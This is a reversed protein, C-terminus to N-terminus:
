QMLVAVLGDARIGLVVGAVPRSASGGGTSSSSVTANDVVFCNAGVHALTIASGTDNVVYYVGPRVTVNLAGAAGTTNDVLKECRGFVKITTASITYGDAANRAYGDVTMVMAGGFIKTTAAVPFSLLLPNVSDEVGMRDVKKDKLLATM